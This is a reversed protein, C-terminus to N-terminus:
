YRKILAQCIKNRMILSEQNLTVFTNNGAKENECKNCKTIM